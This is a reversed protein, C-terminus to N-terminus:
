LLLFLRVIRILPPKEDFPNLVVGNVTENFTVAM